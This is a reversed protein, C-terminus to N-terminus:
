QIGAKWTTFDPVIPHKAIWGDFVRDSIEIKVIGSINPITTSPVKLAPTIAYAPIALSAILLLTITIITLKKM